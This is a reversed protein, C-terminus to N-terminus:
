GGAAAHVVEVEDGDRLVTDPWDRRHILELNVAVAIGRVGCELASVVDSVTTGDPMERVDGNVTLVVTTRV